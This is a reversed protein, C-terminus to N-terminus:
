TTKNLINNNSNIIDNTYEKSLNNLSFPNPIENIKKNENM